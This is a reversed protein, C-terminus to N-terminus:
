RTRPGDPQIRLTTIATALMDYHGVLMVLEILERDFHPVGL